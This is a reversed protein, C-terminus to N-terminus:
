IWFGIAINETVSRMRCLGAQRTFFSATMPTLTTQTAKKSGEYDFGM